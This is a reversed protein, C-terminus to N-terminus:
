SNKQYLSAAPEPKISGSYKDISLRQRPPLTAYIKRSTQAIEDVRSQSTSRRPSNGFGTIRAAMASRTQESTHSTDPLTVATAPEESNPDLILFVSIGDSTEDLRHADSNTVYRGRVVKAPIGDQGAPDRSRRLRDNSGNAVIAIVDGAPLTGNTQTRRATTNMGSPTIHRIGNNM